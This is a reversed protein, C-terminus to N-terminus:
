GLGGHAGLKMLDLFSGGSGVCKKSEQFEKYTYVRPVRHYRRPNQLPWFGAPCIALLLCFRDSTLDYIHVISQTKKYRLAQSHVHFHWDIELLLGARSSILSTFNERRPIELLFLFCTRRIEISNCFCEHFNPLVGFLENARKENEWLEVRTEM